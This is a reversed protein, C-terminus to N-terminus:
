SAFHQTENGSKHGMRILLRLINYKMEVRTSWELQSVCFIADRGAIFFSCGKCAAAKLMDLINYLSATFRKEVM